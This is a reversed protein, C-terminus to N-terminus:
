REVGQTLQYQTRLKQILRHLEVRVHVASKGIVQGIEQSTMRADLYLSLLHMQEDTLHRYLQRLALQNDIHTYLGVTDDELAAFDDLVAWTPSSSRLYDCLTHYAIKFIWAAALGGRYGPLSRWIRVFVESCLDEADAHNAVRRYCYAYVRGVYLRYLQEFRAPDMQIARLLAEDSLQEDM